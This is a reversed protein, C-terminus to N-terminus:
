ALADASVARNLMGLSRSMSFAERTGAKQATKLSFDVVAGDNSFVIQNSVPLDHRNRQLHAHM